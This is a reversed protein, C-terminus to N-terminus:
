STRLKQAFKLRTIQLLFRTARHFLSIAWYFSSIARHFSSMSKARCLLSIVWYLPCLEIFQFAICDLKQCSEGKM